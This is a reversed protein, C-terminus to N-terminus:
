ELTAFSSELNDFAQLGGGLDGSNMTNSYKPTANNSTVRTNVQVPSNAVVSDTQLMQVDNLQVQQEAFLKDISTSMKHTSDANPTTNNTTTANNDNDTTGNTDSTTPASWNMAEQQMWQKLESELSHVGSATTPAPTPITSESLLPHVVAINDPIRRPEQCVRRTTETPVIVPRPSRCDVPTLDRIFTEVTPSTNRNRPIIIKSLVIHLIIITSIALLVVICTDYFM